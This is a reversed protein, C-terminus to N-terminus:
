TQIQIARYLDPWSWEPSQWIQHEQLMQLPLLRDILAAQLETVIKDIILDHIGSM